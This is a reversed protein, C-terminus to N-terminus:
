RTVFSMVMAAVTFVWLMGLATFLAVTALLRANPPATRMAIIPVVPPAAVANLLLRDVPTPERRPSTKATTSEWTEWAEAHSPATVLTADNNAFVNTREAEMPAIAGVVQAEVVKPRLESAPAADTAPGREGSGVSGSERLGSALVAAEGPAEGVAAFVRTPTDGYQRTKGGDDGPHPVMVRTVEDDDRRVDPRVRQMTGSAPRRPEAATQQRTRALEANKSM